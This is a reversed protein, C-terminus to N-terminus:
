ALRRLSFGTGILAVGVLAVAWLPFGTFPLTSGGVAVTTALVGTVTQVEAAGKHTGAPTKGPQTIPKLSPASPVPDHPTVSVPPENVTPPDPKHTPPPTSGGCSTAPHSKLAHVDVGHRHGCTVKHPQSNGPGYVNGSAPYGHSIAIQGATKGNGYKKTRNSGAPANTNKATSNSPKVGETPGSVAPTSEQAPASAKNDQGTQKAGTEPQADQKNQGPADGSNGPAAAQEGSAASANGNGNGHGNGAQAAGAFAVFLVVVCLAGWVRKVM